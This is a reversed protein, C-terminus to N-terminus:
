NQKIKKLTRKIKMQWKTMETPMLFNLLKSSIREESTQRVYTFGEKSELFSRKERCLLNYSHLFFEQLFIDSSYPVDTDDLHGDNLRAPMKTSSTGSRRVKFFSDDNQLFGVLLAFFKARAWTESYYKLSSLFEILHREVANRVKYKELFFVLLHEDLSMYTTNVAGNIEPAHFIRHDYIDFLLIKFDPWPILKM